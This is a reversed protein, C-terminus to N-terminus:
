GFFKAKVEAMMSERDVEIRGHFGLSALYPGVIDLLHQKIERRQSETYDTGHNSEAKISVILKHHTTKQTM